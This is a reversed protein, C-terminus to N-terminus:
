AAGRELLADLRRMAAAPDFRDAAPPVAAAVVRERAAPTMLRLGAAVARMEDLRGSCHLVVDCGAALSDRARGAFDGRLASMGLDDSMLAGAFGIDRRITKEIVDPSLTAPRERDLATYVVHATMAWPMGALTRFPVFDATSLEEYTAEVVPLEVHSDARARGHGPIHKIVPAVGGQMLGDCVRHALAIVPKPVHGYARDGIIDHAGIVPVDLVPTCDVDIGLSALEHAILRANLAAAELGADADAAYLAALRAAPPPKRWHPPGLRAVRGGEQDILVPAETRGVIARFEAALDAVQAPESCNRAFLILGLPDTDAFFRREDDGLRAGACGFVV